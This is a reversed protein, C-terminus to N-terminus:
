FVRSWPTLLQERLPFPQFVTLIKTIKLMFIIEFEAAKAAM